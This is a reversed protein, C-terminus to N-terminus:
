RRGGRGGRRNGGDVLEYAVESLNNTTNVDGINENSKEIKGWKDVELRIHEKFVNAHANRLTVTAGEKILELQENKAYFSICGKADGLVCTAFKKHEGDYTVRERVITVSHVKLHM